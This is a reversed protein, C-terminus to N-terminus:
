KAKVDVAVRRNMARGEVTANDAIPWEKGYGKAGAISSESAGLKKITEAVVDARKQSLTVNKDADGTSDTYGGFKFQAAPFAKFIAAMNKLQVMSGPTLISSGSTFHVNTFEFWNGKVTDLTATTDLLFNILRYETSNKGITLKGANNPLIITVTDGEDYVFDGTLTDVKGFIGAVKNKLSDANASITSDVTAAVETPKTNCGNRFFYLAAAAILILLLLSLLWGAGSGSNQTTSVYKEAAASANKTSNAIKVGANSFISGLSFGAPIASMIYHYQSSLATSISSNGVSSNEAHRGLLALIAPLTIGFLSSASSSKVGSFNSVLTSLQGSTNNGFLSSVLSTGKNLLDNNNTNLFSELSNLIGSQHYEQALKTITDIGTATTAKDALGTVVSPIVASIAKSVGSESEGFYSAIKGVLEDTFLGKATEILHYSM